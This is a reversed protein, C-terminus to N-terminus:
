QGSAGDVVAEAAPGGSRAPGTARARPSRRVRLPRRAGAASATPRARWDAGLNVLWRSFESPDSGLGAAVGEVSSWVQALPARTSTQNCVPFEGGEGGEAEREKPNGLPHQLFRTSGLTVDITFHTHGFVHVDPSLRAVQEGLLTSGEVDGLRDGLRSPHTRHLEARPLFHSFSIVARRTGGDGTPPRQGRAVAEQTSRESPLRKQRKGAPAEDEDENEKGDSDDGLLWVRGEASLAQSLIEENCKAFFRAPEASTSSSGLPSPWRCGSDMMRLEHSKPMDVVPGGGLFGFHYWSQLPVVAVGTAGSGLVAPAAHAGVDEAIEYCALLKEFSDAGDLPQKADHWLDHNGVVYFVHKFREVLLTLAERLLILSTCVDGAVVVADKEYGKLGRVFEMNAAHEVHLDSTAWVREVADLHRWAHQRQWATFREFLVDQECAGQSSALRRPSRVRKRFPSSM